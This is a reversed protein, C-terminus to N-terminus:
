AKSALVQFTRPSVQDLTSTSNEGLSHNTVVGRYGLLLFVNGRPKRSNRNQHSRVLSLQKKMGMHLDPEVVAWFLRPLDRSSERQKCGEARQLESEHIRAM